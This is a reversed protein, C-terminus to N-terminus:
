IFADRDSAPVEDELIREAIDSNEADKYRNMIEEKEAETLKEKNGGFGDEMAKALSIGIAASSYGLNSYGLGNGNDM